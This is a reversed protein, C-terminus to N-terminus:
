SHPPMQEASSLEQACDADKDETSAKFGSAVSTGSLTYVTRLSPCVAPAYATLAWPKSQPVSFTKEEELALALSAGVM